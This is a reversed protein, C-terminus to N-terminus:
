PVVEQDTRYSTVLFGLPNILRDSELTPAQGFQFALIATWESEVDAASGSKEIATFRVQALHDNLFSISKIRIWRKARSGYVVLPSKPNSKLIFQEFAQRQDAASMLTVAKYNEDLDAPDYTERHVVYEALFYKRVSEQYTIGSDGQLPAVTTIAGSVEVKIVFPVSTKLPVLCVLALAQFLALGLALIATVLWRNRSIFVSQYRDTYWDYATTESLFPTESNMLIEKASAVANSGGHRIQAM